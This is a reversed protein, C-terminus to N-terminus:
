SSSTAAISYLGYQSDWDKDVFDMCGDDWHEAIDMYPPTVDQTKLYGLSCQLGAFAFAELTATLDKVLRDSPGPDQTNTESNLWLVARRLTATGTPVDKTRSHILQSLSDVPFLLQLVPDDMGLHLALDELCPLRKNEPKLTLYQFIDQLDMSLHAYLQELLPCADLIPVLGKAFAVGGSGVLSLRRINSFLQFNSPGPYWELDQHGFLIRLRTLSPLFIGTFPAKAFPNGQLITLDKFDKLTLIPGSHDRAVGESDPNVNFCAKQLSTCLRLVRQCVGASVYDGLYLHTLQSLSLHYPFYTDSLINILVAQRLNEFRPIINQSPDPFRPQLSRCDLVLSSVSPFSSISSLYSAFPDSKVHLRRVTKLVDTYPSLLQSLPILQDGMAILDGSVGANMRLRLSWPMAGFKSIRNLRAVVSAGQSMMSVLPVGWMEHRDALISVDVWLSITSDAIAKWARCVMSINEPACRVAGETSEAGVTGRRIMLLYYAFIEDWIEIPLQRWSAFIGRCAWLRRELLEQEKHLRELAAPDQWSFIIQDRIAPQHAEAERYAAQLVQMEENALPLPDQRQVIRLVSQPLGLETLRPAAVMTSSQAWLRSSNTASSLPLPM